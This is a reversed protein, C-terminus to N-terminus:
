LGFLLGHRARNSQPLRRSIRRGGSSGAACGQEAHSCGTQDGRRRLSLSTLVLGESRGDDVYARADEFVRLVEFLAERDFFLLLVPEGDPLLERM